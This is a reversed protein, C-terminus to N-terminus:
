RHLSRACSHTLLYERLNVGKSHLVLQVYFAGDHIAMDAAETGTLNQNLHYREPRLMKRFKNLCHLQHFVDLGVVYQGPADKIEVTANPLKSAESAPIASIGFGLPSILILPNPPIRTVASNYLDEWAEDSENTPPGLYIPTNKTRNIKPKASPNTNTFKYKESVKRRRLRQQLSRNRIRHRTPRTSCHAITLIGDVKGLTTAEM